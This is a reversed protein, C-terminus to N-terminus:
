HKGLWQPYEELIRENIERMATSLNVHIAKGIASYTWNYSHCNKGRQNCVYGNETSTIYRVPLQCIFHNQQDCAKNCWSSSSKNQFSILAVCNASIDAKPCFSSWKVFDLSTNDLWQFYCPQQHRSQNIAILGLWTRSPDECSVQHSLHAIFNEEEESHISVLSAGSLECVSRAQDFSYYGPSFYFCKSEKPVANQFLIWGSPCLAFVAVNLWFLFSLLNEM